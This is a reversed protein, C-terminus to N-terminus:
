YEAKMKGKLEALRKMLNQDPEKRRYIETEKERGLLEATLNVYKFGYEVAPEIQNQVQWDNWGGVLIIDPERDLARVMSRRFEKGNERDVHNHGHREDHAEKWGIGDLIYILEL